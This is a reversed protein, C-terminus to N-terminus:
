REKKRKAYVELFHRGVKEPDFDCARVIMRLADTSLLQGEREAAKLRQYDAYESKTITM